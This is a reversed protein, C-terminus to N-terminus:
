KTPLTNVFDLALNIWQNLDEDREFGAEAVYIMGKLPKGTFDMERAHTQKLADPYAEAGIRLMLESDAIGCCMNGRVMFALGGFMKREVVGVINSMKERVRQAVGEDYAM